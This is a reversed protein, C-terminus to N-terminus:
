ARGRAPRRRIRCRTSPRPVPRRWPLHPPAPMVSVIRGTGASVALSWTLGTRALSASIRHLSKESTGTIRTSITIPNMTEGTNRVDCFRILTMWCDDSSLRSTSAWAKMRMQPRMSRDSSDVIPIAGTMASHSTRGDDPSRKVPSPSSGAHVAIGSQRSAPRAIPAKLPKRISLSRTLPKMAVSPMSIISRPSCMPIVSPLDIM